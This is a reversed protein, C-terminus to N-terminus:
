SNGNNTIFTAAIIFFIKLFHILQTIIFEQNLQFYSQTIYIRGFLYIIVKFYIDSSFM